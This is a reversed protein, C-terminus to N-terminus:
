NKNKSNKGPNSWDQHDASGTVWIIDWGYPDTQSRICIDEVDFVYANTDGWLGWEDKFTKQKTPDYNRGPMYAKGKADNEIDDPLWDSDKDDAAIWNIPWFHRLQTRHKLEHRTVWGFVDIGKKHSDPHTTREILASPTIIITDNFYDYWSLGDSGTSSYVMKVGSPVGNASTQSWYYFWAPVGDAPTQTMACYGVSAVLLILKMKM